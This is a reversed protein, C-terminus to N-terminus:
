YWDGGRDLRAPTPLYATEDDWGGDYDFHAFGPFDFRLWITQDSTVLHSESHHPHNTGDLVIFEVGACLLAWATGLQQCAGASDRDRWTDVTSQKAARECISILEDRTYTM